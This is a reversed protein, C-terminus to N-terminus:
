FTVKITSKEKEKRLGKYIRHKTTIHEIEQVQDAVKLVKVETPPEM